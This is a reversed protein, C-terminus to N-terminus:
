DGERLVFQNFRTSIGEGAHYLLLIHYILLVLIITQVWKAEIFFNHNNCCQFEVSEFIYTTIRIWMIYSWILSFITGKSSLHMVFISQLPPNNIQKPIIFPKHFLYCCTNYQAVYFQNSNQHINPPPFISFYPLFFLIFYFFTIIIPSILLCSPTIHTTSFTSGHALSEHSGECSWGAVYIIEVSDIYIYM